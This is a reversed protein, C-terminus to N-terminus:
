LLRCIAAVWEDREQTSAATLALSKEPSFVQLECANGSSREVKDIPTLLRRLSLKGGDALKKESTVSTVSTVLKKEAYLLADNFLIVTVTEKGHRSQKSMKGDRVYWRGPSQLEVNGVFRKELEVVKEVAERRRVAENVGVALRSIAALSATTSEHDPHSAPTLKLLEELLLKYRPVRQVPQILLNTVGGGGGKLHGTANMLAQWHKVFYRWEEREECAALMRTSQEFNNVYQVYLSSLQSASGDRLFVQGVCSQESWDKLAVHLDQLLADSLDAIQSRRAVPMEWCLGGAWGTEAPGGGGEAHECRGRDPNARGMQRARVVLRGVGVGGTQQGAARRAREARAQEVSSFVKAIEMESLVETQRLPKVLTQAVLRVASGYSKETHALELAVQVVHPLRGCTSRPLAEPPTCSPHPLPAPPRLRRYPALLRPHSRLASHSPRNLWRTVSM